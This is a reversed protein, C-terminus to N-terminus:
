SYPTLKMLMKLAGKVCFSGLLVFFDTLNNTSKKSKPDLHTFAAGLINISNVWPTTQQQVSEVL